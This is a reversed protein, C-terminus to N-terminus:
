ETVCTYSIKKLVCVYLKGKKIRAIAFIATRNKTRTDHETRTPLYVKKFHDVVKIKFFLVFNQRIQSELFGTDDRIGM